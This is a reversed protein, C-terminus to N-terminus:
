VAGTIRRAVDTFIEIKMTAKAKNLYATFFQNRREDLLQERFADRSESIKEPTVDERQTVRVIVTADTTVIPASVEGVSLQFAAKDVDPSIGVGPIASERTLLETDQAELGQAKAAAAFDRSGRLTAAISSARQRSLERARTRVVDERVREKVEDLAPVYPDRKGSVMIWTPGRPSTIAKSVANDALQFAAAVV